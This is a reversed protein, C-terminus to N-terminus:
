ALGLFVALARDVATITMQEISGFVPGAKNRAITHIKDVMIQSAVRLGNRATPEAAIRFTEIPRPESTIPLITVSPLKSFLDLQIVLAPCPKGNADALIVSILRRAEYGAMLIPSKLSGHSFDRSKRTSSWRSHSKSASGASRRPVLTPFWPQVPKLGQARHMERHKRVGGTANTSVLPRQKM